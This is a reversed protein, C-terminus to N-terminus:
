GEPRRFVCYVEHSYGHREQQLVTALEWGERGLANLRDEFEPAAVDKIDFTERKYHWRIM